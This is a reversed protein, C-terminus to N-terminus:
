RTSSAASPGSERVGAGHDQPLHPPDSAGDLRDAHRVPDVEGAGRLQELKAPGSGDLAAFLGTDDVDDIGIVTAAAGTTAPNPARASTCQSRM